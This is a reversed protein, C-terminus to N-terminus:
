IDVALLDFQKSSSFPDTVHNPRTRWTNNTLIQTSSLPLSMDRSVKAHSGSYGDTLQSDSQFILYATQRLVEVRLPWLSHRCQPARWPQLLCTSFPSRLHDNGSYNVRINGDIWEYIMWGNMRPAAMVPGYNMINTATLLNFYSFTVNYIYGTTFSATLFFFPSLLRQRDTTCWGVVPSAKSNTLFASCYLTSSNSRLYNYTHGACRDVIQWNPNTEEIWGRQFAYPKIFFFFVHGLKFQIM